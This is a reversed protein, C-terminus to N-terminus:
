FALSPIGQLPKSSGFFVHMWLFGPSLVLRYNSIPVRYTYGELAKASSPVHCANGSSINQHSAKPQGPDDLSRIPVRWSVLARSLGFSELFHGSEFRGPGNGLM